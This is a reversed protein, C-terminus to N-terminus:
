EGDKPLLPNTGDLLITMLVVGMDLETVRDASSPCSLQAPTTATRLHARTGPIRSGMERGDLLPLLGVSSPM